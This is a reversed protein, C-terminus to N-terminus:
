LLVPVFNNTSTGNRFGIFDRLSHNPQIRLFENFSGAGPNGKTILVRGNEIIPITVATENGSDVRRDVSPDQM